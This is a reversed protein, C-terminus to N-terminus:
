RPLVGHDTLFEALGDVLPLGRVARLAVWAAEDADSGAMPGVPEAVDVRYDLIVYHHDPGRREAVGVLDGCTGTVGTEEVLERLVADALSEGTRVRGGPVSWRGRGPEHGRRVVLLRDGAIAVAGVCVEPGGTV